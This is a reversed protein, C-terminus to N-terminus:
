LRRALRLFARIKEPDKKGPREEVGSAVDVGRAGSLAVAEALNDSTLAGALMWPRTWSRGSLLTWDFALANGGPLAGKMSAPAKADFLLRDAVPLYSEVAAFDEAAAIKIVKMLPKAFRAKLAALRAPSESGHLQLLDLPVQALVEALQDDTPDVFLGVRLVGEPVRRVLSAAGSPTVARPSPPYFNFGLLAAGEAVAVALTDPDNLGCIKTELAM